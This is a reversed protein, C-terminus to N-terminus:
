NKKLKKLIFKNIKLTLDFFINGLSIDLLADGTNEEIVKINEPKVNLFKVWRQTNKQPITYTLPRSENKKM